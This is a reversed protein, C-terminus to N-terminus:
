AKSGQRLLYLQHRVIAAGDEKIVRGQVLPVKVEALQPFNEAVQLQALLGRRVLHDLAQLTGLYRDTVLDQEVGLGQGGAGVQLQDQDGGGAGVVDVQGGGTGLTNGYTVALAVACRRHRLMRDHQQEVEGCAQLVILFVDVGAQPLM